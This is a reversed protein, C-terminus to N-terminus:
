RAAVASRQRKAGAVWLVIGVILTGIGVVVSVVALGVGLVATGMASMPVPPAILTGQESCEIEYDGATPFTLSEFAEYTVGGFDWPSDTVAARRIAGPRTVECTPQATGARHYLHLSEGATVAIQSRGDLLEGSGVEDVLSLSGQITLAAGVIGGGLLLVIGVITLIIGSLKVPRLRDPNAGIAM